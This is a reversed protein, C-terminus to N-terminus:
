GSDSGSDDDKQGDYGRKKPAKRKDKFIYLIKFIVLNTKEKRKQRKALRTSTQSNQYNKRDLEVRNETLKL